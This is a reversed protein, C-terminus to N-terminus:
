FCWGCSWGQWVVVVNKITKVSGLAVTTLLVVWLKMGTM